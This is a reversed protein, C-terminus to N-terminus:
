ESVESKTINRSELSNVDDFPIVEVKFGQM